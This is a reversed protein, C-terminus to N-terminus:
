HHNMGSFRAGPCPHLQRAVHQGESGEGGGTLRHLEGLARAKINLRKAPDHAVGICEGATGAGDHEAVGHTRQWRIM